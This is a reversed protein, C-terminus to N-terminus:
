CSIAAFSNQIRMQTFDADIPQKKVVDAGTCPTRSPYPTIQRMDPRRHFYGYFAFITLIIPHQGAIRVSCPEALLLIDVGIGVGLDRCTPTPIPIAKPLRGHSVDPERFIIKGIFPM